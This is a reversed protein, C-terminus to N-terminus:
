RNSVCLYSRAFAERKHVVYKPSSISVEVFAIEEEGEPKLVSVTVSKVNDVVSLIVEDVETVPEDGKVLRITVTPRKDTDANSKWVVEGPRLNVAKGSSASLAEDPIYIPDEMGDVMDCFEITSPQVATTTQQIKSLTTQHVGSTATASPPVTTVPLCVKVEVEAVVPKVRNEPVFKIELTTM